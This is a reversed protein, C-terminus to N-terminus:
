LKSTKVGDKIGTSMNFKNQESTSIIAGDEERRMEGTMLAMKRGIQKLQACYTLRWLGRLFKSALLLCFLFVCSCVETEMIVMDGVKATRLFNVSLNRTFGLDDWFGPKAIPFPLYAM